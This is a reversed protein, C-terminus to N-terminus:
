RHRSVGSWAGTTSGCVGVRNAGACDRAVLLIPCLALRSAESVPHANVARIEARHLATLSIQGQLGQLLDGVEESHVGSGQEVFLRWGRPPTGELTRSRVLYDSVCSV